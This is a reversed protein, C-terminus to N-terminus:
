RTVGSVSQTTRNAMPTQKRYVALVWGSAGCYRYTQVLGYQNGHIDSWQLEPQFEFAGDHMLMWDVGTEPIDAGMVYRIRNQPDLQRQYFRIIMAHRMDYDSSITVSHLAADEPLREGAVNDTLMLAIAERYHGRDLNVLNWTSAVNGSLVLLLALSTSVAGIRNREWLWIAGQTLLMLLFIIQVLFYRTYLLQPKLLILILAPVFILASAYLVAWESEARWLVALGILIATAGLGGVLRVNWWGEAHGGFTSTLLKSVADIISRGEGGGITMESTVSFYLWMLFVLPIASCRILSGLAHSQLARDTSWRYAFWSAIALFCFIYTSHSAFGLLAVFAFLCDNIPRQSAMSRQALWVSLLSFLILYGYGRAESGYHILQYNTAVLLMLLVARGRHQDWFIAGAVPISLVGAIMTPIRYVMWPQDPGLLYVVLTNLLHNNDHKIQFVQWPHKATQSLEWTWIEDMWFETTGAYWRLVLGIVMIGVAAVWFM